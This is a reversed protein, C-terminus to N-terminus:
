QNGRESNFYEDVQDSWEKNRRDLEDAIIRLETASIAGHSNPWYYVCGDDLQMFENRDDCMAIIRSARDNDPM